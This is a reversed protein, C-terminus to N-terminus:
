TSDVNVSASIRQDVSANAEACARTWLTTESDPVHSRIICVAKQLNRDIGQIWSRVRRKMTAKRMTAPALAISVGARASPTPGKDIALVPWKKTPPLYM